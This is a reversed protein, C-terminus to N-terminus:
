LYNCVFLWLLVVVCVLSCALSRARQRSYYFFLTHIYCSKTAKTASRRIRKREKNRERDKERKIKRM